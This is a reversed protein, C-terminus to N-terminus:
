YFREIAWGRAKAINTLRRSPNVAVPTQALELLPLDSSSDTYVYGVANPFDLKNRSAWEGAWYVKGHGYCLPGDLSGTYHNNQTALRTALYDDGLGLHQAVPRVIEEISASIIVVRHGQNKHWEIKSKGAPALRPLLGRKVWTEFFSTAEAKGQRGVRTILRAHTEGFDLRKLQYSLSIYGVYWIPARRQKVIEQLYILGSSTDLLTYDLDFFAVTTM